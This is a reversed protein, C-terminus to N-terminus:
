RQEKMWFEQQFERLEKVVDPHIEDNFEQMENAQNM